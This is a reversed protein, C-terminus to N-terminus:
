NISSKFAAYVLQVFTPSKRVRSPLRPSLHDVFPHLLVTGGPTGSEDTRLHFIFVSRRKLGSFLLSMGKFIRM